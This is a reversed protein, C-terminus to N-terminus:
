GLGRLGVAGLLWLGLSFMDGARRSLLPAFLLGDQPEGILTESLDQAGELCRSPVDVPSSPAQKEKQKNEEKKKKQKNAHKSFM